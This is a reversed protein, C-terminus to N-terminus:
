DGKRDALSRKILSIAKEGRGKKWESAWLRQDDSFHSLTAPYREPERASLKAAFRNQELTCLREIRLRNDASWEIGRSEIEGHTAEHIIICAYFAIVVDSQLERLEDFQLFITRIRPQYQAGLANTIQNVIWSIHRKVRAYRRADQQQIPRLSSQIVQSFLSGHGRVDALGIGDFRAKESGRISWLTM